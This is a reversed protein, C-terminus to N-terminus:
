KESAVNEELCLLEQKMNLGYAYGTLNGNSGVVRHCPIVIAIPNRNNALGVARCAKPNGIKEAIGKYTEKEGYPIQQLAAWVQQQFPTGKPNLPLSFIKRKGDAYEILQRKAQELVAPSPMSPQAKKEAVCVLRTIAGNEEAIEFIGWQTDCYIITEM